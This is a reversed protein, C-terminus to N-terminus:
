FLNPLISIAWAIADVLTIRSMAFITIGLLVMMENQSMRLMAIVNSAVSRRRPILKQKKTALVSKNKNKKKPQSASEQPLSILGNM